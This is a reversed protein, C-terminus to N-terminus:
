QQNNTEPKYEPVLKEILMMVKELDAELAAMALNEITPTITASDAGRPAALLIGQCQTEVLPEGGHFMEEFLKEGPRLGTIKINIDQDPVLGALRIIQRALDIILVPEGM